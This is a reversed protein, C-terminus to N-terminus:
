APHKRISGNRANKGVVTIKEREVNWSNWDILFIGDM